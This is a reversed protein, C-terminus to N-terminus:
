ACSLAQLVSIGEQAATYAPISLCVFVLGLNELAWNHSGFFHSAVKSWIIFAQCAKRLAM